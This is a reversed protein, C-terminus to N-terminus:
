QHKTSGTIQMANTGHRPCAVPPARTNIHVHETKRCHSTADHASNWYIAHHVIRSILTSFCQFHTNICFTTVRFVQQSTAQRIIWNGCMLVPEKWLRWHCGVAPERWLRWCKFSYLLGETLHFRKATWLNTHHCKWTPHALPNCNTKKPSLWIILLYDSIILLIYSYQQFHSKQIEWLLTAVDSLHPPCIQLIKM